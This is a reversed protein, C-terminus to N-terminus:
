PQLSFSTACLIYSQTGLDITFAQMTLLCPINGVTAEMSASGNDLKAFCETLTNNALLVLDNNMSNFNEEVLLWDSDEVLKVSYYVAALFYGLEQSFTYVSTLDKIAGSHAASVQAVRGADDIAILLEGAGSITVKASKNDDAYTWVPTSGYSASFLADLTAQYETITIGAASASALTCLCLTFALLLSIIRKM